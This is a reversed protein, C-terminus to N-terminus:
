KFSGVRLTEMDSITECRDGYGNTKKQSSWYCLLDNRGNQNTDIFGKFIVSHGSGNRRWIQILDGKKPVSKGAKAIENAGDFTYGKGLKYYEVLANPETSENIIRYARGGPTTLESFRSVSLSGASKAKKAHAVLAMFVASTCMSHSCNVDGTNIFHKIDEKYRSMNFGKWRYGCNKPYNFIVDFTGPVEALKSACWDTVTCDCSAPPNGGRACKNFENVNQIALCTRINSKKGRGPMAYTSTMTVQSGVCKNCTPLVCALNSAFSTKFTTLLLFLIFYNIIKM